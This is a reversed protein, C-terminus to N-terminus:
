GPEEVIHAFQTTAQLASVITVASWALSQNGTKRVRMAHWTGM